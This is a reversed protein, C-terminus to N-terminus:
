FDKFYSLLRAKLVENAKQRMRHGAARAAQEAVRLVDPTARRATAAVTALGATAMPWKCPARRPPRALSLM